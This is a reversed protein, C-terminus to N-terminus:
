FDSDTIEIFFSEEGKKVLHELPIGTLSSNSLLSLAELINTKGKGNEGVIFNRESLDSLILSSFNRFNVLRIKSIM